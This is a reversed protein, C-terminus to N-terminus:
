SEIKKLKVVFAYFEKLLNKLKEKVKEDVLNGKDDFSEYARPVMLEPKNFTIMNTFVAVQRFHYQARATGLAGGAGIMAFPKGNLPSDKVPRSAWDIANKLVGSISYNYETIALLLGDASAIQKKFQIVAEPVGTTEFDGNFLPIPSLDFIEMEMGEPLMQLAAKLLGTNFSYKRLSGSIGLVRVNDMKM